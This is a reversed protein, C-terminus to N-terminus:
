GQLGRWAERMYRVEFSRLAHRLARERTCAVGHMHPHGQACEPDSAAPGGTMLPQVVANFWQPDVEIGGLLREPLGADFAAAPARYALVGGVTGFTGDRHLSPRVIAHAVLMERMDVGEVRYGIILKGADIVQGAGMGDAHGMARLRAVEERWDLYDLVQAGPRARSVIASLFDRVSPFAVGDCVSMPPIGGPADQLPDRGPEWAYGPLLEVVSAGDPSRTAWSLRIRDHACANAPDRLIGGATSWGAPIPVRIAAQANLPPPALPDAIAAVDMAPVGAANRGVDEHGADLTHLDTRVPVVRADDGQSCACAALAFLAAAAFGSM